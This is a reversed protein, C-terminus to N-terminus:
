CGGTVQNTWQVPGNIRTVSTGNVNFETAAAHMCSAATDRSGDWEAGTWLHYPVYLARTGCDYLNSIHWPNSSAPYGACARDHFATEQPQASVAGSCGAMGFFVAGVVLTLSLRTVLYEM